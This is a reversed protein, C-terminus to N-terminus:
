SLNLCPVDVKWALSGPKVCEHKFKECKWITPMVVLDVANRLEQVPSCLPRKKIAVDKDTRCWLHETVSDLDILVPHESPHHVLPGSAVRSEQRGATNGV